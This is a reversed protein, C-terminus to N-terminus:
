VKYEEVPEKIWYLIEEVLQLYPKPDTFKEMNNYKELPDPRSIELWLFNAIIHYSNTPSHARALSHTLSHTLYLHVMRAIGIVSDRQM